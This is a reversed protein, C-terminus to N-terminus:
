MVCSPPNPPMCQSTRRRGRRKLGWLLAMTFRLAPLLDQRFIFVCSTRPQVHWPVPPVESAAKDRRMRAHMGRRAGVHAAAQRWHEVTSV